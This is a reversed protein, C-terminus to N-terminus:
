PRKPAPKDEAEMQRLIEDALKLAQRLRPILNRRPPTM